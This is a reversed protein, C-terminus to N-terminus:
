SKNKDEDDTNQHKGQEHNSLGQPVLIQSGAEPRDFCLVYIRKLPRDLGTKGRKYKKYRKHIPFM